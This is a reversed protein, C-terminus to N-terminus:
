EPSVLGEADLIEPGEDSYGGTYIYQLVRWLAHPSDKEFHIENTIGEQFESQLLTNFYPSRIGLVLRHAPFPVRSEALYVTFDSYKGKNFLSTITLIVRRLVAVAM